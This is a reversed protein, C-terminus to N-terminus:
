IQPRQVIGDVTGPLQDHDLLPTRLEIKRTLNESGSDFAVAATSGGRVGCQPAVAASESRM